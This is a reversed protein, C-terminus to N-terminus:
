REAYQRHARIIRTYAETLARLDQVSIAEDVQHATANKLGLEVVHCGLPALFRGDSSGGGANHAPPTGTVEEACDSCLQAFADDACLFPTANSQQSLATECPNCARKLITTAQTLLEESMHLPSYRWNVTATARAPVVNTAGSSSQVSVTQFSTDPFPGTAGGWTHDALAALGAALSHIPNRVRQPYAVHGQTGTVTIQATLSGRRGIRLTDLIRADSSPEGVICWTPIRGSQLLQKAIHIMGDTAPGEEDTTLLIMLGPTDNTNDSVQNLASIWAAIAAKMDCAGRGRLMGDDLQPEFPPSSWASLEGPPVVDVHGVFALVPTQTGRQAILNDVGNSPHRTCSFGLPTLWETILDLCESGSPTVSPIAMLAQAAELANM